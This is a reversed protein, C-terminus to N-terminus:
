IEHIFCIYLFTTRITTCWTCCAYFIHLSRTCHLMSPRSLEIVFCESLPVCLISDSRNEYLDALAWLQLWLCDATGQQLCECAAAVTQDDSLCAQTQCSATAHWALVDPRDLMCCSRCVLVWRTILHMHLNDPM